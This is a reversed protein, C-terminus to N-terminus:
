MYHRKYNFLIIKLIFDIKPLVENKVSKAAQNGQPEDKVIRLLFFGYIKEKINDITTAATAAVYYFPSGCNM